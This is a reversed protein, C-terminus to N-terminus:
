GKSKIVQYVQLEPATIYCAVILRGQRDYCIAMSCDIGNVAIDATQGNSSIKVINNSFFECVYLDDNEDVAIDWLGRIMKQDNYRWVMTGDVTLAFVGEINDGVFVLSGDSNTNVCYPICFMKNGNSDTDFIHILKGKLSYLRVEASKEEGCAVFLKRNKYSM